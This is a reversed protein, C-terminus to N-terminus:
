TATAAKEEMNRNHITVYGQGTINESDVSQMVPVGSHGGVGIDMLRHTVSATTANPLRRKCEMVTRKLATKLGTAPAASGRVVKIAAFAALALTQGGAGDLSPHAITCLM